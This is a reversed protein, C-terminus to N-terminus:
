IEIYWNIATWFRHRASQNIFSNIRYDLGLEIKHRKNIAYGLMPVLRLEIDYNTSQISNLWEGNVKIYFEKLDASQGNLPIETALRYRLRYEPSEVPSFTQDAVLRHALRFNSLKQVITYQLISRHVINEGRFRLLYGGSIRSNLGIKRAAIFSNDTLVYDYNGKGGDKFVGEYLGQRSELKYNVSWVKKFKYNFNISPLIGVQYFSQGMATASFLVAVLVIWIHQRSTSM